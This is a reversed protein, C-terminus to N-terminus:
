GMRQSTNAEVWGFPWRMSPVERSLRSPTFSWWKEATEEWASYQTTGSDPATGMGKSIGNSRAQRMPQPTMVPTPPAQYM